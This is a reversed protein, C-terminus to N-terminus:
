HANKRDAEILANNLDAVDHEAAERLLISDAGSLVLHHGNEYLREANWDAFPIAGLFKGAALAAREIKEFAEIFGKSKFQGLQGLSASLDIPGIFLMDIGDIAAIDDIQDVAEKSEIQAILLFDNEMWQQYHAIDKGYNTARLLIPAAGRIGEPGYRCASVVEQAEKTNRVNPVMIGMPGIDLIRKITNCDASTARIMPPCDRSELAQMMSVADLVSGAGHELDIMATDYGSMAMIEAAIPNFTEIWCGNLRVGSKLKQKLSPSRM